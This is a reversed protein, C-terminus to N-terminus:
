LSKSVANIFINAPRLNVFNRSWNRNRPTPRREAASRHSFGANSPPPPSAAIRFLRWWHLGARRRTSQIHNTITGVCLWDDLIRRRIKEWTLRSIYVRGRQHGISMSLRRLLIPPTRTSRTRRRRSAVLLASSTTSCHWCFPPRTRDTLPERWIRSGCHKMKVV